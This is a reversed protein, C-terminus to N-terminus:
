IIKTCVKRFQGRSTSSEWIGKPQYPKISPGGIEDNMLGSSSLVIDKVFEAGYRIRSVRSLFINDPDKALKEKTVVSSQCYTASMVIQKVLRKINWGNNMFDLALWDLLEPHSPPEGQMGFDGSTKVIGRGFFEQWIRNVFVRSTLPHKKDFLWKSLGLRNKEL